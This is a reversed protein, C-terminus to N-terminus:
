VFYNSVQNIIVFYLLGSRNQIDQQQYGLNRYILAVLIAFFISTVGRILLAGYNRYVNAFSRWLLIRFDSCWSSCPKKTAYTLDDHTENHDHKRRESRLSSKTQSEFVLRDIGDIEDNSSRHYAQWYKAFMALRTKSTTEGEVSKMDISLIDLYYDAPNYLSPCEFGLVKFYDLAATMPGFFIVQGESLLLLRDFLNFISSRPQHIVTVVIRGHYLTLTKMTEMVSLAQYSDLGSTPEDLFFLHPNKMMEKGILVRRYEGGSVGRRMENGIITDAAELLSLERLIHEVMANREELTIQHLTSPHDNNFDNSNSISSSSPSLLTSQSIMGHSPIHFYSALLLTERVTLFAFLKEDQAVYGVSQHQHHSTKRNQHQDTNIHHTQHAHHPQKNGSSSLIGHDMFEGNYYIEGTLRINRSYTIKGALVNMLSTKGCGTPGMIALLQGSSVTGSINRLLHRKVTPPTSSFWSKPHMLQLNINFWELVDSEMTVENGRHHDNRPDTSKM